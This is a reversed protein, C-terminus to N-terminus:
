PVHGGDGIAFKAILEARNQVGIIDYLDSVYKKVTDLSLNRAAAIEANSRGAILMPLICRLRTPLQEVVDANESSIGDSHLWSVSSIVIHIIKRERPTFYPRGTKRGLGVGSSYTRNGERRIPVISYVFDDMGFAYVYARSRKNTWAERGVLECVSRTFHKGRITLEKLPPNEPPIGFAGFVRLAYAVAGRVGVRGCQQYQLNVPRLDGLDIYSHAWLWCDGNVMESLGDLLAKRKRRIPGNVLAVDAVLSVISQVDEDALREDRSTDDPEPNGDAM